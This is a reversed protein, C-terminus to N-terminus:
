PKRRKVSMVITFVYMLFPEVRVERLRVERFLEELIAFYHFLDVWLAEADSLSVWSCSLVM